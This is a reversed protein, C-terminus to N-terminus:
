QTESPLGYNRGTQRSLGGCFKRADAWSVREVPLNDGKCRCPPLKGMMAKWQGQTVLHKGMRFSKITVLHQPQEDTNGSRGPSGMQFLGAPIVIMELKIGNRLEETFQEATRRAWSIIKGKEDLTPMAFEIIQM